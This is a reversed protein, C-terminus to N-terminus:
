NTPSVAFLEGEVCLKLDGANNRAFLYAAPLEGLHQLVVEKCRVGTNDAFVLVRDPQCGEYGRKRVGGEVYAEVPKAFIIQYGVLTNLDCRGDAHALGNTLTMAAGTAMLLAQRWIRSGMGDRVASAAVDSDAGSEVPPDVCGSGPLASTTAIHARCRAYTRARLTRERTVGADM